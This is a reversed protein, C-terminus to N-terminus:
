ILITLLLSLWIKRKDNLDYWLPLRDKLEILIPSLIDVDESNYSIFFYDLEDTPEFGFNNSM